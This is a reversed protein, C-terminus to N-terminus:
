PEPEAWAPEPRAWGGSEPRAWGVPAEPRAWGSQVEPRAWGFVSEPRAWSVAQEPLEPQPEVNYLKEVNFKHRIKDKSSSTAPPIPHLIFHKVKPIPPWKDSIEVLVPFSPLYGDSVAYITHVGPVLMRFYEGTSFFNLVSYITEFIIYLM